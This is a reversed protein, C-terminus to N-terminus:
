RDQRFPDKGERDGRADEDSVEMRWGGDEGWAGGVWEDCTV